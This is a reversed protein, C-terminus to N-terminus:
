AQGHQSGHAQMHMCLMHQLLGALEGPPMQLRVASAHRGPQIGQLLCSDHWDGLTVRQIRGAPLPSAQGIGKGRQHARSSDGALQPGSSICSCSDQPVSTALGTPTLPPLAETPQELRM